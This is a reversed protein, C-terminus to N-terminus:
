RTPNNQKRLQNLYKFNVDYLELGFDFGITELEENEISKICNIKITNDENKEFNIACNILRQQLRDLKEYHSVNISYTQKHQYINPFAGIISTTIAFFLFVAKLRPKSDNWGKGFVFISLIATIGALIPFLTIVAFYNRYLTLFIEKKFKKRKELVELKHLVYSQLLTDSVENEVYTKNLTYISDKQDFANKTYKDFYFKNITTGSLILTIILSIIILPISFLFKQIRNFNNNM